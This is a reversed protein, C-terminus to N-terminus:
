CGDCQKTGGKEGSIVTGKVKSRSEEHSGYHHISSNFSGRELSMIPQLLERELSMMPQLLERELSMMPQLLERETTRMSAGLNLSSPSDSILSLCEHM